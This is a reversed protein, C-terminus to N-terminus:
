ELGSARFQERAMVSWDLNAEGRAIAQQLHTQWGQLSPLSIGVRTAAELTLMADKLGISASAGVRGWDQQAILDSYARYAISNFLGEVMVRHFLVPDVSYKRVLAMGEGIAEIACGLVFNNAVKIATASLPDEGADFVAEGIAAFLPRVRDVAARPGGPVLGLKGSAALDPRGLVHCAVLVQGAAVHAQKLDNMAGVGHTGSVMHIAGAPLASVLGGSGLAAERLIEDNPLMSIVVDSTTALERLGSKIVAGAAAMRATQRPDPDFVALAHGAGLLRTAMGSGMRGLGIFGIRLNPPSSSQSM